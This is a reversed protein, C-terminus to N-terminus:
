VALGAEFGSHIAEYIRAPQLADGIKIFKIGSEQLPEELVNVPETGTAIVLLDVGTLKDEVGDKNFHIVPGDIQVIQTETLISVPLSAIRQMLLKRSIMEMDGAVQPLIEIVTTPIDRQAIFEAAEMGIMGGGIVLAKKVTDWNRFTYIDFGTQYNVSDLGPFPIIKPKAGSALIVTDPKLERLKDMTIEANLHVNVSSHELHQLLDEHLIKMGEKAPALFSLAFQGGLHDEKEYLDVKHGRSEATLAAKIGSPGGGIVLVKRPQDVPQTDIQYEKGVEPNVVCKLGNLAKVNALCGQLCYGCRIVDQDRNAIMKRPLDPDAVLPRGLGIFDVANTEAIQRIDEPNGNRGSAIVPVSVEQILQAAAKQNQDEPLTFFQYYVPPSDCASGNVVHLADCGETQLMKALQVAEVAGSGGETFESASIRAIVPFDRGIRDRIATIVEKSFRLRKESSGGWADTRKNTAGSSFQHALYGLGFQVELADFGANVARQAADAFWEVAQRIEQENMEKPRVGHTPCPIASPAMLAGGALKPNAARGAHNIHAAIKAGKEHVAQVLTHLGPILRDEHIGVQTPLEKGGPHIFFPECIIMAAGGEARRGYYRRHQESVEGALNGYGTKVPAMIFLNKLELNGISRSEDLM